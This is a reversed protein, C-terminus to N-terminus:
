QRWRRLVLCKTISLQSWFTSLQWLCVRTKQRYLLLQRYPWVRMGEQVADLIKLGPVIEGAAHTTIQFYGDSMKEVQEALPVTGGYM